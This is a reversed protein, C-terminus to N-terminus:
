MHTPFVRSITAELIVEIYSTLLVCFLISFTVKNTENDMFSVHCWPRYKLAFVPSSLSMGFKQHCNKGMEQSFYQGFVIDLFSGTLAVYPNWKMYEFTLTCMTTSSYSFIMEHFFM